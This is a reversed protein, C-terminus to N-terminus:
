VAAKADCSKCVDDNDNIAGIGGEVVDAGMRNCVSPTESATAPWTTMTSSKAFLNRLSFVGIVCSSDSTSPATSLINSSVGGNDAGVDLPAAQSPLSAKLEDVDEADGGDADVESSFFVKSKTAVLYRGM